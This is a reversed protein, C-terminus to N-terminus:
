TIKATAASAKAPMSSALGVLRVLSAFMSSTNVTRAVSAIPDCPASTAASMTPSEANEAVMDVTM